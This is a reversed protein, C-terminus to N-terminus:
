TEEDTSGRNHFSIEFALEELAATFDVNVLKVDPPLVLHSRAFNLIGSVGAQVLRDAVLNAADAPVALIGLEIRRQRVLEDLDKMPRVRHGKLEHGIVQPDEDFVAKIEFGDIVLGEYGMLAQGIKGAGVLAANWTRDMGLIERIRSALDDTLYGIGPHGFTGFCALDKRVQADTVGVARGLERSSMRREGATIRLNVERLYMSLRRITAKSINQRM